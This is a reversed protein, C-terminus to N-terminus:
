HSKEYLISIEMEVKATPYQTVQYNLKDWRLNPLLQELHQLYDVTKFFDSYFIILLKQQYIKITLGAMDPPNYLTEPFDKIQIINIDSKSRLITRIIDQWQKSSSSQLLNQYKSQLNQFKSHQQQWQKYLPTKAINILASIQTNWNDMNSRLGKIEDELNKERTELPLFLFFYFVCYLLAWSLIITLLKERISCAEYWKKASLIYKNM